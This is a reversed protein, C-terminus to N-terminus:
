PSLSILYHRLYIFTRKIITSNYNLVRVERDVVNVNAGNDLCDLIEQLRGAKTAVILEVDKATPPNTTTSHSTEDVKEPKNTSSSSQEAAM